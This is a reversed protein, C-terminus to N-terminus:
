AKIETIIIVAHIINSKTPQCLHYYSLFLFKSESM